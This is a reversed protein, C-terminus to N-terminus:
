TSLCEFGLRLGGGCVTKTHVETSTEPARWGEPGPRCGTGRLGTAGTASRISEIGPATIGPGQHLHVLLGDAEGLHTIGEGGQPSPPATSTQPRFRGRSHVGFLSLGSPVPMCWLWLQVTSGGSAPMQIQGALDTGVEVSSHEEVAPDFPEAPISPEPDAAATVPHGVGAAVAGPDAVAASGGAVPASFVRLGDYPNPPIEHAHLGLFCSVDIEWWAEQQGQLGAGPARDVPLSPLAERHTNIVLARPILELYASGHLQEFFIVLVDPPIAPESGAM